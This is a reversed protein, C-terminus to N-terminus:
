TDGDCGGREDELTPFRPIERDDSRRVRGIGDLRFRGRCRIRVTPTPDASM